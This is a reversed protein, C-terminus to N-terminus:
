EQTETVPLSEIFQAVDAAFDRQQELWLSHSALAKSVDRWAIGADECVNSVFQALISGYIWWCHRRPRIEPGGENDEDDIM